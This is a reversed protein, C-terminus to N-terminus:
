KKMKDAEKEMSKVKNKAEELEVEVEQKLRKELTEAKESEQKVKL